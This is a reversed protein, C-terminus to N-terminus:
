YGQSWEISIMGSDGNKFVWEPAFWTKFDLEVKIFIYTKYQDISIDYNEAAEQMNLQMLDATRLAKTEAPVALLMLRLYDEYDMMILRGTINNRDSKGAAGLLKDLQGEAADIGKDLLDTGLKELKDELAKYQESEFIFKRIKEKLQSKFQDLKEPAYAKLKDTIGSVLNQIATEFNSRFSDLDDFSISSIYDNITRELLDEMSYDVSGTQEGMLETLGKELPAFAKDIIGNIAGTVTEQVAESAQKVSDKIKDTVFKRFDKTLIEKLKSIANEVGLYWSASTKILPVSKGELLMDTDVYSEMGAWAILIFNQVIPIGFITWGAIATALSLATAVKDPDTYVHILNFLLRIAFLSRKVCALNEKEYKNGFLIYEIEAQKLFNKDLPRGWGIDHEIGEVTTVCKFASVIYENMYLSEILSEVGESILNRVTDLLKRIRELEYDFFNKEKENVTDLGKASQEFPNENIITNKGSEIIAKGIQVLAEDSSTPGKVSPLNLYREAINELNGNIGDLIDADEDEQTAAEQAFEGIGDRVENLSGDDETEEDNYESGSYIANFWKKFSKIENSNAKPELIYVPIEYYGKMQDVAKLESLNNKLATLGNRVNKYGEFEKFEKSEIHPNEKIELAYDAADLLKDSEDCMVRFYDDLYQKWAELKKLNSTLRNRVETITDAKISKLQVELSGKITDSVSGKYDDADKKLSESEKELESLKPAIADILDIVDATYRTHDSIHSMLIQLQSTAADIVASASSLDKNAQTLGEDITKRYGTIETELPELVAKAANCSEKVSDYDDKLKAIDAELSAIKEHDSSESEEDESESNKEKLDALDDKKKQLKDYAKDLKRKLEEYEEKAKIYDDYIAIYGKRAENVPAVLANAREILIKADNICETMFSFSEDKLTTAPNKKSCNFKVLEYNIMCYINVLDSRIDNMLKDLTMKREIMDGEKILGMMVKIKEYFEQVVQIPARYKMFEAVQQQLVFPESLNYFPIVEVSLVKFEYLDSFGDVAAGTNLNRSLLEYVEKEISEVDRPYMAFLGYQEKLQRDYAAIVSEACTKLATKALKKALSYRSIDILMCSLPILVALVICLFVTISGRRKLFM